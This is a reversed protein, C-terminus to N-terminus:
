GSVIKVKVIENFLKLSIVQHSVCNMSYLHPILSILNAPLM